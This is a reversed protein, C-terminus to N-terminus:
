SYYDHIIYLYDNNSGSPMTFTGTVTPLVIPSPTIDGGNPLSASAVAALLSNIGIVTNPFLTNSRLFMLRNGTAPFKYDDSPPIANSTVSVTANDAPIVGGGQFSTIQSYDAIVFPGASGIPLSRFTIQKTHQPSTYIPSVGSVWNYENHIFKGEDAPDTICVNIITLSDGSPCGVTLEVTAKAKGGPVAPIATLTVNGNTPLVTNKNFVLTGAGTGTATTSSGTYSEAISVSDGATLSTVNYSITCAGVNQGFDVAFTNPSSVDTQVTITRTVGCNFVVEETPLETSNSSLVFENMYPDFAGLKQTNGSGIFLDRFWSRMGIESIVNLQESQGSGRLQLLAGRKSDTFFKNFGYQVFSEPNQSIGYEEVRAIQTGLVEPVSTIASGAAADSLLNKGALVYSIKDEQLTLIDTERGSLIQIPGFVEELNKFNLLGLNFENLNNVNTETNFVGSYTLAAFRDAEQYDEASTSFAREGLSFAKGKISDRIRYSEVGNGYAYCNGFDTIVIADQTANQDQGGGAAPSGSHFGTAQDIAYSDAGEFWVDPLADSPETEFAIVEDSRLILWNSFIKSTGATGSGLQAVAGKIIFRVEGNTAGGSTDRYWTFAGEPEGDLSYNNVDSSVPSTAIETLLPLDTQGQNILADNISQLIPNSQFWDIIDTYNDPSTFERTSLASVSTPTPGSFNGIRNFIFSLSIRTGTTITLGYPPNGAFSGSSGTGASLGYLVLIPFQGPTSTEVSNNLPGVVANETTEVSFDNALIRM